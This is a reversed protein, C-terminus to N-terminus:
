FYNKNFKVFPKLNNDKLLHKPLNIHVKGYRNDAITKLNGMVLMGGFIDGSLEDTKNWWRKVSNMNNSFEQMHSREDNSQKHTKLDDDTGSTSDSDNQSSM